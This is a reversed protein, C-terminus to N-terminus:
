ATSRPIHDGTITPGCGDPSLKVVSTTPLPVAWEDLLTEDRGQDLVVVVGGFPPTAPDAGAIVEAFRAIEGSALDCCRQPSHIGPM